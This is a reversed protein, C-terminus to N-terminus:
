GVGAREIGGYYYLSHVVFMYRKAVEESDGLLNEVWQHVFCHVGSVNGIRRGELQARLVDVKQEVIGLESARIEESNVFKNSAQDMLPQGTRQDEQLRMEKGIMEIVIIMWFVFGFVYLVCLLVRTMKTALILKSMEDELLLTDFEPIYTIPIEISIPKPPPSLTSRLCALMAQDLQEQMMHLAKLIVMLPIQLYVFDCSDEFYHRMFHTFTEITLGPLLSISVAHSGLVEEDDKSESDLDTDYQGHYGSYEVPIRCIDFKEELASSLKSWSHRVSQPLKTIFIQARGRLAACTLLEHGPVNVVLISTIGIGIMLGKRLTMLSTSLRMKEMTITVIFGYICPCQTLFFIFAFSIFVVVLFVSFGFVLVSLLKRSAGREPLSCRESDSCWSHSTERTLHQPPLGGQNNSLSVPTIFVLSPGATWM